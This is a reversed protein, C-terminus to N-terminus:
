LEFPDKYQILDHLEILDTMIKTLEKHKAQQDYLRRNDYTMYQQWNNLMQQYIESKYNNICSCLLIRQEKSLKLEM